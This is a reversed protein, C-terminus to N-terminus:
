RCASGYLQDYTVKGLLDQKQAIIGALCAQEAKQKELAAKHLGDAKARAATAVQQQQQVHVGFSGLALLAVVVVAVFSHWPRYTYRMKLAELKRRRMRRGDNTISRSSVKKELSNSVRGITIVKRGIRQRRLSAPTLKGRQIM